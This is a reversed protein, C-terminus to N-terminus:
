GLLGHFALDTFWMGIFSFAFIWVAIAIGGLFRALVNRFSASNGTGLPHRAPWRFLYFRMGCFSGLGLGLGIILGILGGIVRDAKWGALLSCLVPTTVSIGCIMESLTM